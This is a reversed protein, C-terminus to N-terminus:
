LLGLITIFILQKKSDQYIQTHIRHVTMKSTRLQINVKPQKNSIYIIQINSCQLWIIYSIINLFFYFNSETPKSCAGFRSSVCFFFKFILICVIMTFDICKDSRKSDIIVCMMQVCQCIVCKLYTCTFKYYYTVM